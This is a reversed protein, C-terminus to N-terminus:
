LSFFYKIDKPRFKDWLLVQTSVCTLRRFHLYIPCVRLLSEETMPFSTRVQFSYPCHVFPVSFCSSSCALPLLSIYYSPSASLDLCYSSSLGSVAEHPRAKRFSTAPISQSSHTCEPHWSHKVHEPIGASVCVNLVLRQRFTQLTGLWICRWSYLLSLVQLVVLLDTEM